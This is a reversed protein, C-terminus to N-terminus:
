LAAWLWVSFSVRFFTLEKDWVKREQFILCKACSLFFVYVPDRLFSGESSFVSRLLGVSDWSEVRLMFWFFIKSDNRVGDIVM